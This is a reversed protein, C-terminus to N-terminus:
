PQESPSPLGHNTLTLGNVEVLKICGDIEPDNVGVVSLNRKTEGARPIDRPSLETMRGRAQRMREVYDTPFPQYRGVVHVFEGGDLSLCVIPLGIKSLPEEAENMSIGSYFVCVEVAQGPPAAKFNFVPRRPKPSLPPFDLRLFDTPFLVSAVHVGGRPPTPPRRWRVLARRPIDIGSERKRAAYGSEFAVHCWGSAHLSCKFSGGLNRSSLYVDDRYGDVFWVSSRPSANDGVVFRLKDIKM